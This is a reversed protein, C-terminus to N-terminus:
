RRPTQTTYVLEDPVRVDDLLSADEHTDTASAPPATAAEIADLVARRRRHKSEYDYLDALELTGLSGLAAIVEPATRAALAALDLRVSDAPAPAPAAAQPRAAPRQPAAESLTPTPDDPSLADALRRGTSAFLRLAFATTRLAAAPLILVSGLKM